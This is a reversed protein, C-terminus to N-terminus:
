HYPSWRSRCTLLRRCRCIHILSLYMPELKDKVSMHAQETSLLNRHKEQLKKLEKEVEDKKDMAKLYTEKLAENDAQTKMTKRRLEKLEDQSAKKAAELTQVQRLLEDKDNKAQESTQMLGAELRDIENQLKAREEMELLYTQKEEQKAKRIYSNIEAERDKLLEELETVRRVASSYELHEENHKKKLTDLEFALQEIKNSKEKGKNAENDLDEQLDKIKGNLRELEYQHNTKLLEESGAMKAKEFSIADREQKLRDRERKVESLERQTESLSQQAEALERRLSQLQSRYPENDDPKQLAKLQETLDDIQVVYNEKMALMMRQHERNSAELEVRLKAEAQRLTGLEKSLKENEEGMLELKTKCQEEMDRQIRIRLLEPDAIALSRAQLEEIVKNRQALLSSQRKANVEYEKETAKSETITEMLKKERDLLDGKLKEILQKQDEQLAKLAHNESYLRKIHERSAILAKKYEFETDPYEM